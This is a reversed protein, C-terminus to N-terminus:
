NRIYARTVSIDSHGLIDKLSQIDNGSDLYRLAFCRRITELTIGEIGVTDAYKKLTKWVGQRTISKGYINLFLTSEEKPCLMDRLALYANLCRCVDEDLQLAASVGQRSLNLRKEELSIDGVSLSVLESVKIGTSYILAFMARDRIGSVSRTDPMSLLRSFQEETLAKTKTVSRKRISTEAAPNHRAQGVSCLYGFLRKISALKRQISVPALGRQLMFACYQEVERVDVRGIDSVGQRELYDFFQEIDRLYSDISISKLSSQDLYARFQELNVMLM